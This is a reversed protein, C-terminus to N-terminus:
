SEITNSKTESSPISINFFLRRGDDNTIEDILNSDAAIKKICSTWFEVAGLNRKHVQLEWKGSFRQWLEGVVAKGIGKRRNEPRVFFEAVQM